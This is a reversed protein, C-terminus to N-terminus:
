PAHVMTQHLPDTYHEAFLKAVLEGRSSVGTKDYVTKLYDRVTHPSLYMESAIEPASLGRAVLRVVAGERTTLGYARMVIPAIEASKAPEVVVAVAEDGAPTGPMVSAHLVLWRGRRDRQRLRAPGPDRGASVARARVLLPVTPFPLRLDDGRRESLVEMWGDRPAEGYARSLWDAAEANASILVDDRDFLMLGPANASVPWPTSGSAAQMRLATGVTGSVVSLLAVDEPAFPPRGRSRFFSAMGWTAGGTRFVVRLEDDYGQPAVFSRYRRSRLPNGDTASRLAAAPVPARALDRYLVADQDHFEGHWFPECYGPDLHGEIRSPATALLTSPDVGFWMAADYDMTRAIEAGVKELLEDADAASSGARAVHAATREVTQRGM